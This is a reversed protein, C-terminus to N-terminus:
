EFNVEGYMGIKYSGDNDILVKIAYVLNARENKTQITKPTFEAKDSIWTITGEKTNFGGKGDDTSVKVKQNLRIHPLQNGSIYARLTIPSLDAIKYLPKGTVAMEKEEAFKTLVTGNVPNVITCKALQDELQEVQIYLPQSEKGISESTISLSSKTASIQKKLVEISSNIDDLQKTPAADSEILRTIRGKEVEAKRLQEELAAIQIAVDPRRSLVANIQAQLQKKKLYLQTSDIYGVTDGAELVQGEEINFKLLIGPVEASIMTEVAEFSGSADFTPHSNHCAALVFAFLSLTLSSLSHSKNM